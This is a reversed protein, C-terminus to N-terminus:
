KSVIEAGPTLDKDALGAYDKAYRYARFVTNQAIERRGRKLPEAPYVYKWALEKEPTVEFFAGTDGSCILTNGNPLRQAGSLHLSTWDPDDALAVSWKAEEPGYSEGAKDYLGKSNLPPVIEDVSSFERIGRGGNNFVLVNGEGPLGKDIWHAHHQGILKMDDQNGSFYALPNGWRYLLDGGKGSKGGTSGKAEETTTSHDIVWFENFGLVSIM